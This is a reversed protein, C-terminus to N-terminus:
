DIPRLGQRVDGTVRAMLRRHAFLADTGLAGLCTYGRPELLARHQTWHGANDEITFLDITVRDFDVSRLVVMEAGEVDLSFYDIHAVGAEALVDMVPRVKVWSVQFSPKPEVAAYHDELHEFDAHEYYRLLGSRDHHDFWLLSAEQAALGCNFVKSAPRNAPLLERVGPHLEVLVGNWGLAMEFFWTNSLHEGEFAGAEFFTGNRHSMLREFIFRDQGWQSRFSNDIVPVSANM